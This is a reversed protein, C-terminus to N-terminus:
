DNHGGLQIKTIYGNDASIQHEVSIIEYEGDIEEDIKTLKLSRAPVIYPIGICTCSCQFMQRKENEIAKQVESVLDQMTGSSKDSINSFSPKSLINKQTANRITESYKINNQPKNKDTISAQIKKHLYKNQFSFSIIQKQFELTLVSKKKEEADIFYANGNLVYFDKCEKKCLVQKIFNYDSGEQTLQQKESNSKSVESTNCVEKYDKMIEQFVEVPTKDIFIRKQVNNDQMLRIFDLATVNIVLQETYQYDIDYIYGKFIGVLCSVYGIEVSIEEGLKIKSKVNDKIKRAEEDYANLISFSLSAAADNSLKISVNDLFVNSKSNGNKIYENGIKIRFEPVLFNDFTQILKNITYEGKSLDVNAM